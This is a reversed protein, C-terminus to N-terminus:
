RTSFRGLILHTVRHLVNLITDSVYCARLQCWINNNYVLTFQFEGKKVPSKNATSM